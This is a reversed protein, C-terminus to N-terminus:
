ATAMAVVPGGSATSWRAHGGAQGGGFSLVRGDAGIVYYGAGGARAVVGVIDHGSAVSGFYTADGFASINGNKAVLWYGRGDSTAAMGVIPSTLDMAKDPGYYRANGFAYVSGRDTVLWYGLGYPAPVIAVVPGRTHSTPAGYFKADGFSYVGGNNTALWYGRASQAVAMGIVNRKLHLDTGAGFFKADGFSFVGGDAAVEWYGGGDPTAAMGVVPRALRLSTTPGCAKGGHAIIKGTSTVEWFGRDAYASVNVQATHGLLQVTVTARAGGNQTPVFTVVLHCRAGAPAACSPTISWRGNDGSVSAVARFARNEEDSVTLTASKPVQPASQIALSLPTVSGTVPGTVAGPFAFDLHGAAGSSFLETMSTVGNVMTTAAGMSPHPGYDGLVNHRHDWCGSPSATSCDLNPSGPGDDYMWDYDALLASAEGGAWNSGWQVGSPGLPDSNSVAGDLALRDLQSSMGAFGPLGRDVRELDALVLVQEAATLNTFYPPLVLPGVGQAARAADIAQVTAEQCAQGGGDSCAVDM